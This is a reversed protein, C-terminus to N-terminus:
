GPCCLVVGDGFTVPGGAQLNADCAEGTWMGDSLFEWSEINGLGIPNGCGGNAPVSVVTGTCNDGAYVGVTAGDCQGEPADCLCSCDRDDAVIPFVTRATYGDPCRGNTVVLCLEGESAQAVCSGMDCAGNPASSCVALQELPEKGGGNAPCSGGQASPTAALVQQYNNFTNHCGPEDDTEHLNNCDDTL